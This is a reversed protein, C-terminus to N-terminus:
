FSDTSRHVPLEELVKLISDFIVRGSLTEIPQIL